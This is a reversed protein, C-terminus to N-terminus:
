RVGPIPPVPPLPPLPPVELDNRGGEEGAADTTVWRRPRWGGEEGLAYTTARGGEEGYALTTIRGGEEGFALTTVRRGRPNASAVGAVGLLGAVAAFMNGLLSRRTSRTESAADGSRMVGEFPHQM